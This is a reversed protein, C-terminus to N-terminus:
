GRFHLDSASFLGQNLFYGQLLCSSNPTLAYVTRSAIM